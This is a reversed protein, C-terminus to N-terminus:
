RGLTGRLEEELIETVREVVERKNGGITAGVSRLKKKL